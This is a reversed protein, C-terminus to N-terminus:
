KSSGLNQIFLEIFLFLVLVSIWTLLLQAWIYNFFIISIIFLSILIGQRFSSLVHSIFVKWRYYIKKIFYLFLSSLASVWFIFTIIILIISIIKNEYPDLYNLILIFTILSIFFIFSIILLIFRKKM